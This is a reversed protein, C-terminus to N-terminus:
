LKGVLSDIIIKKQNRKKKSLFLERFSNFSKKYSLGVGGKAPNNGALDSTNNAFTNLRLRGDDTLL